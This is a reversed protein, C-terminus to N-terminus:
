RSRECFSPWQRRKAIIGARPKARADAIVMGPYVPGFVPVTPKAIQCRSQNSTAVHCAFVRSRRGAAIPSVGPLMSLAARNSVAAPLINATKARDPASRGLMLKAFRRDVNVATSRRRVAM